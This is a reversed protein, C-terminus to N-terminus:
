VLGALEPWALRLRDAAEPEDALLAFDDFDFGPGVTCTVLSYEGAGRAAQWAGAPVVTTARAEPGSPGLRWQRREGTAPDFVFLEIPAGELFTWQEDSRVRHWRSCEGEALLFYIATLGARAGRGDDPRVVTHARHFERYSGGEPHPVLGLREIRDAAATRESAVQMTGRQPDAWASEDM